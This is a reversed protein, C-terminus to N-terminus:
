RRGDGPSSRAACGVKRMVRAVLEAQAEVGVLRARGPREPRHEGARDGGREVVRVVQELRPPAALAREGEDLDIRGGARPRDPDDVPATAVPRGDQGLQGRGAPEDAPEATMGGDEVPREDDDIREAPGVGVRKGRPQGPSRAPGDHVEREVEDGEVAPESRASGSSRRRSRSSRDTSDPPETRTTGAIGVSPRASWAAAEAWPMGATM